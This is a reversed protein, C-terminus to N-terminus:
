IKTRELGFVWVVTMDQDPHNFVMVSSQPDDTEVSQVVVAPNAPTPQPQPPQPLEVVKTQPGVTVSQWPALLAVALAATALASGYVLRRDGLVSRWTWAPRPLAAEDAAGAVAMRARVQPWFAEWVAEDPEPAEVALAAGLKELSAAEATCGSCRALHGATKTRAAPGLEGDQYADLRRRILWCTPNPM